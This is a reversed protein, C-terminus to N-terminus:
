RAGALVEALRDAFAFPHTVYGVHGGPFHTISADLQEALALGPRYPWTSRSDTGGALVLRSANARLVKLDCVVSPYTRIEYEFWFDQNRRLRDLLEALQPEPLEVEPPPRTSATMGMTARFHRQAAAAGERRYRDYLDTYFALWGEADPLATALPPEHAVVTGVQEPVRELTGLAVIAGSSGGFVHAGALDLHEILRGIDDADADPRRDVDFPLDIPSRSFGRRDYTVVTFGQDALSTALPRMPTADGNGTPVIVLGPGEGRVEHYLQAGPVDLLGTRERVRM